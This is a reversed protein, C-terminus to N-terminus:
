IISKIFKEEDIIKLESKIFKIDNKKLGELILYDKETTIIKCNLNDAEKLIHNIDNETYKYHDPFEINKLINLEYNKIMSIFTKHNGIGSFILYKDDKNFEELNIAEYKRVHINIQPKIKLVQQKLKELNELNGNLFVHEFKKLNNIDERLPGAPITM